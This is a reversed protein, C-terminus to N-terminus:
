VRAQKWRGQRWLYIAAIGQIAQTIAMSLWCGNAGMALGPITLPGIDIKDLALWAALPVRVLWMCFVTVWFPRVTDGAGQMASILVMAYGFLTETSAIYRLYDATVAAFEPKDALVAAAIPDAFVFLFIAVVTSIIGAQHAAAWGLRSARDPDGMGLSQGVLAAAAVALGFAPMFALAEISFGPRVAGTAVSGNPVLKLIAMFAILSTVRVVSMLSAPAALRFIRRSWDLTPPLLKWVDGLPTRRCWAMYAFAAAWASLTLAWAAGDLGLGAGPLTLPGIQHSPFILLYNLLIHLLIQAGSVVMPSLTDGVGRLSGALTQIIFSAPLALASIGLYSVMLSAAGPTDARVLLSAALPALPIALLVLVLSLALGFALCRRNSERAKDPDAEGHARSVMATAAVGMAMSLSMLLWLAPTAAGVATLADDALNQVFYSDLLSNVTQLGNLAVAPWALAWVVRLSSEQPQSKTPSTLSAPADGPM